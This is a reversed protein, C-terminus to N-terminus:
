ILVKNKVCCILSLNEAFMQVRKKNEKTILAKKRPVHTLIRFDSNKAAKFTCKGKTETEGLKEM